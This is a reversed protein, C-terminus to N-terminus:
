HPHGQGLVAALSAPRADALVAAGVPTWGAHRLAHAAHLLTEGSTVVDDIVLLRGRGPRASFVPPAGRELRRPAARDTRTLAVQVALGSRRALQDPLHWGREALRQVQPAVACVADADLRQALRGVHRRWSRAIGDLPLPQRRGKAGAIADAVAGAYVYFGAIPWGGEAPGPGPEVAVACAACWPSRDGVRAPLGCAWCRNPFVAGIAWDIAERWQM